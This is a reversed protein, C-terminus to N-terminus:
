GTHMNEMKNSKQIYKKVTDENKKMYLRVRIKVKKMYSEDGWCKIM